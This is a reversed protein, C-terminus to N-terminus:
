LWRSIEPTFNKNCGFFTFLRKNLTKKMDLDFWRSLLALLEYDKEGHLEGTIWRTQSLVSEDFASLIDYESGETDIKILDVRAVGLEELMARPTRMEVDVRRQADSGKEYFSFGGYNRRSDSALMPLRGDKKGLAVPHVHINRYGAVNRTLLSVNDPVPEFAHIRAGPFLNAFLISATGINAGIDFITEPAVEPPVRYEARKGQKLLIKYILECDSTGLRYYVPHGHWNLEGVSAGDGSARCDRM